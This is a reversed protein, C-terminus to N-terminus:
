RELEELANEGEGALRAYLKDVDERRCLETGPTMVAAAGAALGYSVAKHIPSGLALKVAIAGVMSDGAGVRSRQPVTPTRMRELRDGTCLVVGGAGLSVVVVKVKHRWILERAATEMDEDTQIQAGHLFGLEAMNPKLLYMETKQIAARLAPGSTDLIFPIDRDRCLAAVRGYFDEPVGGPLSGSAVALGAEDLGREVVELCHSWEDPGLDHGPPVFRFQNGSKRERVAFSRRTHAGINVPLLGVGERELTRSLELGEEDGSTYVAVTEGGLRAIVRSVNIGGGGPDSRMSECRLKLGPIVHDVSTSFDLSPNMTLTLIRKRRMNNEEKAQNSRCKVGDNCLFGNSM